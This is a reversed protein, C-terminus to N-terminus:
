SSPAMLKSALVSAGTLLAVLGGDKLIDIGNKYALHCYGLGLLGVIAVTALTWIPHGKEPLTM